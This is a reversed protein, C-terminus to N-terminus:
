RWSLTNTGIFEDMNACIALKALATNLANADICDLDGM